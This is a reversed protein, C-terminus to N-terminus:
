FSMEEEILDLVQIDILLLVIVKIGVENWKIKLRFIWLFFLFMYSIKRKIKANVAVENKEIIFYM